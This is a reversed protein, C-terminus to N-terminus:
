LTFMIEEFGQLQLVNSTVPKILQSEELCVKKLVYM